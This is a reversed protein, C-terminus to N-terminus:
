RPKVEGLALQAWYEGIVVGNTATMTLAFPMTWSSTLVMSALPGGFAALALFGASGVVAGGVRFATRVGIHDKKTMDVSNHQRKGAETLTGDKNQFRRVGWKQGKIGHHAFYIQDNM